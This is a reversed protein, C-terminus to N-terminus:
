TLVVNRNNAHNQTPVSM